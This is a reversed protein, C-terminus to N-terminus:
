YDLGPIFSKFVKQQLQMQLSTGEDEIISLEDWLEHLKKQKDKINQINNEWQQKLEEYISEYRPFREEKKKSRERIETCKGNLERLKEQYKGLYIRIIESEQGYRDKIVLLSNSISNTWKDSRKIKITAKYKM